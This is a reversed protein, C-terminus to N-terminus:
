VGDPPFICVSFHNDKEEGDTIISYLLLSAALM